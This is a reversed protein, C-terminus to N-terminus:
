LTSGSAKISANLKSFDLTGTNVNTANKLHISLKDIETSIKAIESPNLGIHLNASNNSM